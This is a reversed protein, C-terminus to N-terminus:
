KGLRLENENNLRVFSDFAFWALIYWSIEELRLGQKVLQAIAFLSLGLPVLLRLDVVGNTMRDVDANFDSMINVLDQAVVSRGDRVYQFDQGTEPNFDTNVQGAQNEFEDIAETVVEKFRESLAMGETITTRVVPQKVVYAVSLILSSSIMTALSDVIEFINVQQWHCTSTM